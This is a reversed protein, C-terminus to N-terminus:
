EEDAQNASCSPLRSGLASPRGPLFCWCYVQLEEAQWEKQNHIWFFHDCVYVFGCAARSYISPVLCMVMLLPPSVTVGWWPLIVPATFSNCHAWVGQNPFM